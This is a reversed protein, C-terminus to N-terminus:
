CSEREVLHTTLRYEKFGKNKLDETDLNIREILVEAAKQGLEYAPQSVVTLPPMTIKTWEYDDFGIIAMEEPIKVKRDQLLKIAGLTMINNSVFIATVDKKELLEQALKYGNDFNADDEKILSPDLFIDNDMFAQVYGKLREDSTTIGLTGSIFGIKKHGKKILKCVAEYTGGFGDTLVCDGEFGKPKRDVFVVPYSARLAENLYDHEEGTPAIVLGDIFQSNFVKIQEVENEIKENSNSLILNYGYKKLTSEIGQAVNMFYLNSTDMFRVPIILGIIRSKKSRLSRAAHNPVYELEKMAEQVKIKTEEAVFRTGNIVHSVTATSVGAREAVKKISTAM